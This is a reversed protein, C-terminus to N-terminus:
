LISTIIAAVFCLLSMYGFWDLVALCWYGFKSTASAVSSSGPLGLDRPSSAFWSSGFVLAGLAAFGLREWITFGMLALVIFVTLYIVTMEVSHRKWIEAASPVKPAPELAIGHQAGWRMRREGTWVFAYIAALYLVASAILGIIATAL